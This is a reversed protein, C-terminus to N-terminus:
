VVALRKLLFKKNVVLFLDRCGFGLWIHHSPLWIVSLVFNGVLASFVHFLHRQCIITTLLIQQFTTLFVFNMTEQCGCAVGHLKMSRLPWCPVTQWADQKRQVNIGVEGHFGQFPVFFVTQFVQCGHYTNNLYIKYPTYPVM